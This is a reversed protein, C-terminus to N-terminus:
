RGRAGDFCCAGPHGKGRNCRVAVSGRTERWACRHPDTTDNATWTARTAERPGEDGADAEGDVLELPVGRACAPCLIRGSRLGEAARPDIRPDAPAFLSCQRTGITDAVAEGCDDCRRTM